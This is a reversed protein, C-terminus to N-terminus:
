ERGAVSVTFPLSVSQGAERREIKEFVDVEFPRGISNGALDELTKDVLLAYGGARWPEDPIFSWTTEDDGVAVSGAVAKGQRDAVALVRGLMARDLPEPFRVALARRTGAAPPNLTWTKPDPPTMDPAEVRFTKRFGTGLPHGAADQWRRNVELTYSKGAELVPGLEERPKLGTKIRGPDFLLTFRRGRPDWLEEGLELFPLDLAKGKADLLRLNQYAEGRSMPASFEIYFKLLNEPLVDRAPSVRVVKTLPVGVEVPAPLMFESSVPAARANPARLVARYRVGPELPFRPQFRLVGAATDVRYSGLLPPRDDGGNKSPGSVTSVALVQGARGPDSALAALTAPDLGVAEVAARPDGPKSLRISPGPGAGLCLLVFVAFVQCHNPNMPPGNEWSAFVMKVSIGERIVV